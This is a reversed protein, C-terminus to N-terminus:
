SQGGTLRASRELAVIRRELNGVLDLLSASRGAKSALTIDPPEADLRIRTAGDDDVLEVLTRCRIAGVHLAWDTPMTPHEM